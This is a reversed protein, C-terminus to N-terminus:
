APGSRGVEDIRVYSWNRANPVEPKLTRPVQVRPKGRDGCPNTQEELCLARLPPFNPDLLLLRWLVKPAIAKQQASGFDPLRRRSRLCRSEVAAIPCV